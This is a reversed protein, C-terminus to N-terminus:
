LFTVSHPRLSQSTENNAREEKQQQQWLMNDRHNHHHHTHLIYLSPFSTALQMTKTKKM